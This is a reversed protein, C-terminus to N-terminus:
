ILNLSIKVSKTLVADSGVQFKYKKHYYESTTIVETIMIDINIGLM